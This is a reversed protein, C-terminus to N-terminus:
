GDTELEQHILGLKGFQYNLVRWDYYAEAIGKIVKVFQNFESQVV